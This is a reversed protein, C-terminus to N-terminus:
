PSEFGDAFLLEPPPTRYQEMTPTLLEFTRVNDRENKIGSPQSGILVAPSSFNLPQPLEDFPPNLPVRMLTGFPDGTEIFHAFSWIFSADAPDQSAPGPQHEAGMLHGLEHPFSNRMPLNACEVSVWNIAFDEFAVGVGCQSVDGVGGCTPSQLYAIGCFALEQVGQNNFFNRLLVSTVDAYNANRAAIIQSNLRLQDRDAIADAGAIGSPVFGTLLERHVERVSLDALGSNIFAQNTNDIAQQILADLGAPGGADIEAQATYMILLDLEVPGSGETVADLGAQFKANSHEGRGPTTRSGPQGFVDADTSPLNSPDIEALIYGDDPAGSIRYSTEDTVLTGRAVDNVVTLGLWGGNPLEGYWRFSVPTDPNGDPVHDGSCDLREVYGARAIFRKRAADIQRGGPLRLEVEESGAGLTPIPNPIDFRRRFVPNDSAIPVGDLDLVATPDPPATSPETGLVVVEGPEFDQATLDFTQQDALVGLGTCDLATVPSVGSPAGARFGIHGLVGSPLLELDPRFILYRIVDDNPPDQRRCGAFFEKERLLSLCESPDVEAFLSPEFVLDFQLATFGRHNDLIIPIRVVSGTEVSGSGIRITPETTPAPAQQAGALAITFGITLVITLVISLVVAFSYVLRTVASNQLQKM